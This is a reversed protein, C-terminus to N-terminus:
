LMKQRPRLRPALPANARTDLELVLQGADALARSVEPALPYFSKAGVHITGFLYAVEAGRTVWCLAGQRRADAPRSQAGAAYPLHEVSAALLEAAPLPASLLLASVLGALRVSQPRKNWM